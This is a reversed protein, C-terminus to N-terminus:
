YSVKKKTKVTTRRAPNKKDKSRGIAYGAGAGVAGGIIAGKTRHGKGAVVAGTAAGAGTGIVAGKKRHSWSKRTKTKVKTQAELYGTTVIVLAIVLMLVKLLKKM